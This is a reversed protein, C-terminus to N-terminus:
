NVANFTASPGASSATNGATDSATGSVISIGITGNGVVGSITVTRSATGGGTVNVTSADATGTKNLSVNANILSVANAGGYTITYTVPGASTSAVSPASIAITPAVTDITVSLNGSYVSVNGALDTQKTRMKTHTGDSLASSTITVTGGACVGSGVSTTNDFLTVTAGAECSAILFDPTNDATINDTNSTGLDTAATMDPTATAAPSTKDFTVSSSDTVSTVATGANGALDSFNITFSFLGETNTNRTTYSATWNNGSPNAYTVAGAVAVGGSKFAVTPTGIAESATFSLTVIDGTKAYSPNANNSAISASPITPATTDFTVGTNTVTAANNGATDAANFAFTYVAGDALSQAISCGNVTDSLNLATHTGTALATGILNCIHPSAGDAAGSTRTMTITGSAIATSLRYNVSSSATISKIFANTLPATNSIIPAVTDITVSLSGSYASLNGALDAQKARMTGHTGDTLVSSTITVTGGSCVGSGVATTNNFLTVTDGSVCSITFDPTNDSTINDINSIGLDTASTLDPIGPAADPTNDVIFTAGSTPAAAVTNGAIDQGVSFAVTDTGNGAGVTYAYTYHTSDTKTMNVPALTNVGTIGIQVIPADAIPESFTATITQIDGAKVAHNISYTVAATPATTDITISLNGSAPSVTIGDTQKANISSHVGGSLTSSTITVTSAACIGSGISTVNDYLTVTDGSVCSVTFDPTTDSTINDTNSTGSDTAATMDPTGPAPSPPAPPATFIWGSNGSADTSHTGAYWTSAPAALSNQISLYDGSIVGGGIKALHHTGATTSSLTVIHSPAGTVTFNSFTNTTGTAFKIAQTTGDSFKLDSFTNSGLIDLESGNTANSFWLSPYTIGGGRFTRANATNGSIKITGSGSTSFSAADPIYTWVATNDTNRLDITGGNFIMSSTGNPQVYFDGSVVVNKGNLDLTGASMSLESLHDVAVNLDDQLQFYGGIAQIQFGGMNQGGTAITTTGSTNHFSIASSSDAPVYTMAGTMIFKNGFVNLNTVPNQILSHTFGTADFNNIPLGDLDIVSPGPSNADFFIDDTNPVQADNLGGSTLSWNTINNGIVVNDSLRLLSAAGNATRLIFAYAGDTTIALNGADFIGPTMDGVPVTNVVTQSSVQIISATNDNFNTVYVHLGDPAAAIGKPNQGVSITNIVTNDSTQIVSVANSSEDVVYVFAGSPTISLNVPLNGVAIPSGVVTNDSTQIVSVTNNGSNATYIHAGDPTIALAYPQSGVALSITNVVTNDSTQIVSVSNSNYNAVYVHAGDPTVAVGHPSTGVPITAVVTDDSTRIVSVTNDGSNAVYVFASDPTVALGIPSTGTTIFDINNNTLTDIVMVGNDSGSTIYSRNGDPSFAVGNPGYGASIIGQLSCSWTDNTCGGVWYRNEALSIKPALLFFAAAALLTLAKKNKFISM